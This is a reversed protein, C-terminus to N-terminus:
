QRRFRFHIKLPGGTGPNRFRVAAIRESSYHPVGPRDVFWEGDTGDAYRWQVAVDRPPRADFFVAGEPRLLWRTAGDGSTQPVVVDAWRIDPPLRFGDGSGAPLVYQGDEAAPSASAHPPNAPDHATAAPTVGSTNTVGNVVQTSNQTVNIVLSGNTSAAVSPLAIATAGVPTKVAM